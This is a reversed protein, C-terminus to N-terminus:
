SINLDLSKANTEECGNNTCLRHVDYYLVNKPRQFFESRETAM